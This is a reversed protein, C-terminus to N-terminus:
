ASDGDKQMNKLCEWFIYYLEKIRAENASWRQLYQSRIDDCDPSYKGSVWKHRAEECLKYGQDKMIRLLELDSLREM